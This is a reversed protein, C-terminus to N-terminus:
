LSNQGHVMSPEYPSESPVDHLRRRIGLHEVLSVEVDLATVEPNFGSRKGFSWNWHLMFIPATYKM